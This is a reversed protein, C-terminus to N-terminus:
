WCKLSAPIVASSCGSMLATRHLLNMNMQPNLPTVASVRSVIPGIRAQGSVLAINRPVIASTSATALDCPTASATPTGSWPSLIDDPSSGHAFPDM